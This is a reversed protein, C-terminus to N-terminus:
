ATDWCYVVVPRTPDLVGLASKDIRRLPVNVAGPLHWEEFEDPGLVEVIQADGGLLGRVYERDVYRPM